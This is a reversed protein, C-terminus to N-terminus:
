HQIFLDPEAWGQKTIPRSQVFAPRALQNNRVANSIPKWQAHVRRRLNHMQSQSSRSSISAVRNQSVNRIPQQQYAPWSTFYSPYFAPSATQALTDQSRRSVDSAVRAQSFNQISQQHSVPWSTSYAPYSSQPMHVITGHAPAAPNQTRLTRNALLSNGARYKHGGRYGYYAVYTQSDQMKISASWNFTPDLLFTGATTDWELWAHTRLDELRRKGIVLSVNSAGRSRMWRYLLLAKGKCDGIRATEVEYPTQWTHSYQYPMDRLASMWGNVVDMSPAYTGNAAPSNLIPQVREMQHDYPTSQVEFFTSQALAISSSGLAVIFACLAKWFPSTMAPAM